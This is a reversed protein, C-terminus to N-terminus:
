APLHALADLLDHARHAFVRRDRAAVLALARQARLDRPRAAVGGGDVGRVLDVLHALQLARDIRAAGPQEQARVGPGLERV